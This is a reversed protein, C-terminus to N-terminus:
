AWPKPQTRIGHRQVEAKLHAKQDKNAARVAAAYTRKSFSELSDRRILPLAAAAYEGPTSTAALSKLYARVVKREDVTIMWTGCEEAFVIEDGRAMAEILEYLVRFCAVAYIHDGQQSLRESDTLLDGLREFWARTEEPVHTFNKSNVDFPAYYSGAVSERQFETVNGFLTEGDVRVPKAKRLAKGFVAHRQRTTMEDFASNLFGLPTAANQEGLDAFLREKNMNTTGKVLPEDERPSAGHCHFM